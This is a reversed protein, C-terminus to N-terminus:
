ASAKATHKRAREQYREQWGPMVAELRRERDERLKGKIALKRQDYLWRELAVGDVEYRFPLPDSHASIYQRLLTFNKEWQLDTKKGWIMGMQDLKRIEEPSLRERRRQANRIWYGLKFGEPTEYRAPVDLDGHEKWYEEAAKLGRDEEDLAEELLRIKETKEASLKGSVRSFRRQANLWRRLPIGQRSVADAPIEGANEIWKKAEEYTENWIAGPRSDWNMGLQNLRETKEASLRNKNKRQGSIWRGLRIGDVVCDYDINLDGHEEKYREALAFRVEWPDPLEWEMGLEELRERRETKLKGDRYKERQDSLWGGLKYGDACVYSPSLPLGCHERYYGAAHEFGKEWLLDNRNGWIMGLADLRAIQEETLRGKESKGARIGCLRRLWVGLKVGNPDVYAAPVDLNGHTRHYEVAAAYNQEFLYDLVNWQMGLEDLAAIREDTLFANRVGNKRYSRLGTIWDGLHIGDQTVYQFPVILDGHEESYTKAAAYYREWERDTRSMWRMGLADLKAIRDPTLTGAVKGARVKRQVAIWQGLCCGDESVYRVPVDLNGYEAAYKRAEEYMIDWTATLTENLRDFLALCDHVEDIIEFGETIEGALGRERYYNVAVEMEEEITGVSYLNEINLVIDFIVPSKTSASSLARGIQQKYIIPSITPRLLIVGSVDDVHVGENLMDICFLLKLHDSSDSKFAEFAQSTSPDEAYASYVHPHPDVKRFWDKAAQMMEQMHEYNACFVLYKGHRDEMHRDFLVDLGVANELARRLKDIIEEAADRAARNKVQRARREYRALDDKYRFISLVYKPAPLIGRVIAEGLTMESAIHGDFLEQAMDRRGDLYRINTATLGLIAASPYVALLRQVGLGWQVAGARHFEDAIILSLDDPISFLAEIEPETMLSLKAYTLFTINALEDGGAHLWNETQTQFIYESPALWLVCRGPNSVAYQFGIFSKGTGTPHIVCAKGSKALMACVNEYATRNHPFLSVSM